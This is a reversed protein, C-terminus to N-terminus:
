PGHGEECRSGRCTFGPGCHADETCEVCQGDPMCLFGDACGTEMCGSLPPPLNVKVDKREGASVCTESSVERFGPLSVNLTYCGDPLPGMSLRGDEDLQKPAVPTGVLSVQAEDV